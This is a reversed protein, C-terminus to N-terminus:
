ENEDDEGYMIRDAEEIAQDYEWDPNEGKLRHILSGRAIQENSTPTGRLAQSGTGLEAPALVSYTEGSEDYTDTQDEHEAIQKDLERALEPTIGLAENAEHKKPVDEM